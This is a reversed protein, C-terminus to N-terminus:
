VSWSLQLCSLKVLETTFPSALFSPSTLEDGPSLFLFVVFSSPLKLISLCSRSGMLRWSLLLPQQSSASDRHIDERECLEPLFEQRVEM